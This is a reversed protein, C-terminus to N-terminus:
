FPILGLFLFPAWPISISFLSPQKFEGGGGPWHSARAMLWSRPPWSPMNPGHFPSLPGIESPPWSGRLPPICILHSFQHYIIHNQRDKPALLEPPLFFSTSPPIPQSENGGGGKKQELHSISNPTSVRSFRLSKTWGFGWYFGFDLGGELFFHFKGLGLYSTRAM